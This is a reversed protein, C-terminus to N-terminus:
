ISHDEVAGLKAFEITQIHAEHPTAHMFMAYGFIFGYNSYKWRSGPEFRLARKGYLPIYDQLIRLELHHKDFEPGWIDGTGGTITLLEGITV